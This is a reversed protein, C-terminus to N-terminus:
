VCVRVACKEISSSVQTVGKDHAFRQPRCWANAPFNPGFGPILNFEPPTTSRADRVKEGGYPM